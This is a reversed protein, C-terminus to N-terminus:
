LATRPRLALEAWLKNMTAKKSLTQTYWQLFPEVHHPKDGLNEMIENFGGNAYENLRGFGMDRLHSPQTPDLYTNILDQTKDRDMLNIELRSMEAILLLGIILRQVPKYDVVFNDVFEAGGQLPDFRSTALGMMLCLYYLDFKTELPEEKSIHKFWDEVEQRMRFAM